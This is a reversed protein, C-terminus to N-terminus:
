KKKLQGRDFFWSAIGENKKMDLQGSLSWAGKKKKKTKNKGKKKSERAYRRENGEM